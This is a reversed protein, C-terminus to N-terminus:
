APFLYEVGDFNFKHDMLRPWKPKSMDEEWLKHEELMMDLILPKEDKLDFREARDEEVNYLHVWGDRESMIFKWPGRRMAHLHDARWHLSLHPVTESEGKLYPILNVGDFDRDGPLEIGAAAAATVFVDTSSVPMYYDQGEPVLGPLTISMPISIGGEFHNLKGGKLPGNETAGTYAAGGNDSLFFVMTNDALGSTDLFYNIEGVADDLASIMSYYVRKNEDEVHGYQCYYDVPAQFPVHPANFHTLLMFPEEKQAQMYEIARDKIAFTLYDEEKTKKGNEIIAGEGERGMKWQYRSSFSEQIHNVYGATSQEPTYLSFAGYFGWQYDFGRKHPKMRKSVGLHWKGIMGTHYGNSKFLEGMTMESPPLGQKIVQWERPYVPKSDLVFDDTNVFWKGSLFEIFNKPYFEMMQTEFGFRNQHRGTMIAARSPACVPATSYAEWFRVGSDMLNDIHPTQIHDSGYYGSVEGLGLDDVLIVLVNPKDPTPAPREAKMYQKNYRIAKKDYTIRWKVSGTSLPYCAPLLILLWIWHSIFKKVFNKLLFLFGSEINLRTRNRCTKVRNGLLLWEAMEVMLFIEM